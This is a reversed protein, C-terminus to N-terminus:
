AATLITPAGRGIVITHEHHAALGGDASLVTWRDRALRSRGSGTTVLPEITIVLGDALVQRARPDFHNPVSPDEHITRGIGHGCLDRFVSFGRERVTAEVVRGIASVRAGARAVDLARTFATKACEVLELAPPRAPAVAVTVAADAFYGDLEATVDLTVLDGPQLVRPGPIGHVVEDNVSICTTGPFDYVIRPGSRAGHEEFIRAAVDDLEATTIGPRVASRMADLTRAVVRGVRQLARM